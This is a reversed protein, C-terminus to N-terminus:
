DAAEISYHCALRADGIAMDPSYSLVTQACDEVELSHAFLMIFYIWM